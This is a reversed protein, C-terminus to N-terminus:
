AQLRVDDLVRYEAGEPRTESAMLQMADVPWVVAERLRNDGRYHSVKRALTLHLNRAPVPRGDHGLGAAAAALREQVAEPPVLALFLRLRGERSSPESM